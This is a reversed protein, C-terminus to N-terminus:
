YPADCQNIQMYQLIKPDRPHDWKIWMYFGKLRNQIQNALIKLIKANINMLLTARYNEKKIHCRKEVKPIM